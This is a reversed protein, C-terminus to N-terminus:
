CWCAAGDSACSCARPPLTSPSPSTAMLRGQHRRHQVVKTWKAIEAHLMKGFREPTTPQGRRRRRLLRQKCRPSREAGQRHRREASCSTRRRARRRWSPPGRIRRTARCARSPSPRCTPCCRRASRAPWARAGAGQRGQDAAAGDARRQVDAAGPRRAPREDGARQGQLARAAAQHRGAHQVTRRGPAHRRRQRGLRLWSARRQAKALAILEAVTKAPVSPHAVLVVPFMAGFSVPM